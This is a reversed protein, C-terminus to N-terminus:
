ISSPHAGYITKVIDLSFFRAEALFQVGATWGTAIGVSSDPTTLFTMQPDFIFTNQFAIVYLRTHLNLSLKSSRAEEM